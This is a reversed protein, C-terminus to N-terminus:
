LRLKPKSYLLGNDPPSRPNPMAALVATTHPRPQATTALVEVERTVPKRVAAHDVLQSIDLTERVVNAKM